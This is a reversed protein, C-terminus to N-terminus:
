SAKQHVHTHVRWFQPKNLLAIAPYGSNERGGCNLPCHSHQCLQLGGQGADFLGWGPGTSDEKVYTDAAAKCRVREQFIQGDRSRRFVNFGETAAAGLVIGGILAMTTIYRTMM